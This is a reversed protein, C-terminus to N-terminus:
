DGSILLYVGRKSLSKWVADVLRGTRPFDRSGLNQLQDVTHLCHESSLWQGLSIYILLQANDPLTLESPFNGCAARVQTVEYATVRALGESTHTHAHMHVSTHTYTHM